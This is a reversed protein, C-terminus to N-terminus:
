EKEQLIAWWLKGSYGANVIDYGMMAILNINSEFKDGDKEKFVVVKKKELVM